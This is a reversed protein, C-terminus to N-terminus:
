RQISDTRAPNRTGLEVRTSLTKPLVIFANAPSIRLSIVGVYREQSGEDALQDQWEADSVDEFDERDEVTEIEPSSTSHDSQDQGLASHSGHMMDANHKNFTAKDFDTMLSRSKRLGVANANQKLV